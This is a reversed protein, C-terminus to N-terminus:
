ALSDIAPLRKAMGLGRLEDGVERHLRRCVEFVLPHPHRQKFGTRIYRREMMSVAALDIVGNEDTIALGLDRAKDRLGTLDHGVAKVQRVTLGKARLFAKLYLEIAHFSLFDVPAEPHTADHPQVKALTVASAAYSHAYNFLGIPSTRTEEDVIAEERKPM